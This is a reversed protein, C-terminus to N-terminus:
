LSAALVARAQAPSMSGAKASTAAPVPVKAVAMVYAALSFAAQFIAALTPALPFFPAALGAITNIGQAIMQAVSQNPALATGINGANAALDDLAAQIQALVADSPREGDPMGRLTALVTNLGAVILNTDAQLQDATKNACSALLFGWAALTTSALERRSLTQM